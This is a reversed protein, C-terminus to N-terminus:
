KLEEVLPAWEKKLRALTSTAEESGAYEISIGASNAAKIYEPDEVMQKVAKELTVLIDAPTGKPAAVIVPSYIEVSGFGLEALTPVDPHTNARKSRFIGLINLQDEFGTLQQIGTSVADVQSALLAGRSQAGGKFPVDTLDIGQSGAWSEMVIHTSNGRGSHGYRLKGPNQKAAEIFDSVSQYPGDKRVFIGTTFAGIQAIIEFDDIVDVDPNRLMIALLASGASMVNLTYGDPKAKAVFKVAIMHGGGPKNVVVMPQGNLYKQAVSALIRNYTDLGGGAGAGNITTIEREPYEANAPVSLSIAMVLGAILALMKRSVLM